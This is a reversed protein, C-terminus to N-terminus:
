SRESRQEERRQGGLDGFCETQSPPSPGSALQVGACRRRPSLSWRLQARGHGPVPHVRPLIPSFPSSSINHTLVSFTRPLAFPQVAFNKMAASSSTHRYLLLPGFNGGGSCRSSQADSIIVCM